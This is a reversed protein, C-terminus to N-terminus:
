GPSVELARLRERYSSSQLDGAWMIWADVSSDYYKPRVGVRAFGFRRYMTQAVTNDARVELTIWRAGRQAAKSVMAHMLRRGLHQGRCEPHLAISTVHAEDEVLWFGAYGVLEQPSRVVLYSATPNHALENLFAGEQWSSTFVQKELEEVQAVDERSM